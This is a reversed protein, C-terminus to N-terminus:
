SLGFCTYTLSGRNERASSLRDFIFSSTKCDLAILILLYLSNKLERVERAVYVM